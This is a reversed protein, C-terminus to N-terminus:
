TRVSITICNADAKHGRHRADGYGTPRVSRRHFRYKGFGATSLRIEQEKESLKGKIIYNEERSKERLEEVKRQLALHEGYITLLPVAKLHDELVERETPKYYSASLGIDHGMTIEVNIPRMVQEVRTKYFKRFGHAARENM